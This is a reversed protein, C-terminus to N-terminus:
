GTCQCLEGQNGCKYAKYDEPDEFTSSQSCAYTRGELFGQKYWHTTVREKAKEFEAGDGKQLDPYNEWYCRAQQETIGWGVLAIVVALALAAWHRLAPGRVGATPPKESTRGTM